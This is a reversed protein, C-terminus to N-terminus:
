KWGGGLSRYLEVILALRQRQIDALNLEGQLASGQAILVELYDAMGSNYLLKANTIASKLTDVRSKEILEQQQTKDIRVLADSVEGVAILVSQRFDM